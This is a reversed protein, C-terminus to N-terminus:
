FGSRRRAVKVRGLIRLQKASEESMHLNPYIQNATQVIIGGPAPFLRRIVPQNDIVIAFVGGTTHVKTDDLDIAVVDGPHLIPVMADDGVVVAAANSGALSYDSLTFGHRQSDDLAVEGASTVGVERLSVAAAPPEGSVGAFLEGLSVGYANAMRLLMDTNANQIGREIRSISTYDVNILAAAQQLTLNRSLRHNRLVEGVIKLSQM